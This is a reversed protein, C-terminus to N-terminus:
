SEKEIQVRQAYVRKTERHRKRVEKKIQRQRETDRETKKIQREIDGVIQRDRM